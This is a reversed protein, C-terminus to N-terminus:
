KERGHRHAQWWAGLFVKLLSFTWFAWIAGLAGTAFCGTSVTSITATDPYIRFLLLGGVLAGFVAGWGAVVLPLWGLSTRQSLRTVPAYHHPQLARRAARVDAAQRDAVARHPNSMAQRTGSARLRSGIANGAVHAGVIMTLLLLTLGMAPGVAQWVGLGFAVLSVLWFM